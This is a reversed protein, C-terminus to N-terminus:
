RRGLQQSFGVSATQALANRLDNAGITINPPATSVFSLPDKGQYPDPYSPNRITVNYQQFATIEGDLLSNQLNVYIIGYGGRLVSRGDDRLDWAAGLRPALNNHDGRAAFDVYPLPKPYRAQTFDENFIKTQLDYRAGLNLDGVGAGFETQGPIARWTEVFPMLVSIQARPLVRLALLLDQAFDM